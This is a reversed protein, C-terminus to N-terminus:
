KIRGQVIECGLSNKVQMYLWGMTVPRNFESVQIIADSDIWGGISAYLTFEKKGTRVLYPYFMQSPPYPYKPLKKSRGCLAKIGKVEFGEIKM